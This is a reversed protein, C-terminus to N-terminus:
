LFRRMIDVKIKTSNISSCKDYFEEFEIEDMSNFDISKVKPIPKGMLTHHWDYHGVHIKLEYLLEEQTKYKQQNELTLNLLAFFKKHFKINRPKRIVAKVDEGLKIKNYKEEDSNFLPKLGSITKRLYIEM